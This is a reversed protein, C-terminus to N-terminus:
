NLCLMSWFYRIRKTCEAMLMESPLVAPPLFHTMIHHNRCFIMFHVALLILLIKYEHADRAL